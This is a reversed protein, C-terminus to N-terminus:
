ASCDVEQRPKAFLLILTVCVVLLGPITFDFQLGDHWFAISVQTALVPLLAMRYRSRTQVASQVAIVALILMVVDGRLAPIQILFAGFLLPFGFVMILRGIKRKFIQAQPLYAAKNQDILVQSVFTDRGLLTIIRRAFQYLFLLPKDTYGQILDRTASDYSNGSDKVKQSTMRMLQNTTSSPNEAEIVSVSLNFFVTTDPWWIGHKRGNRVALLAAALLTPAITLTLPLLPAENQFAAFAGGFIALITFDVRTLFGLAALIGLCSWGFPGEIQTMVISFLLLWLGLLADPWLHLVLVAREFCFILLLGTTFGAYIGAQQHTYFGAIGITAASILSMLVRANRVQQKKGILRALWPVIIFLPVRLWLHNKPTNNALAIYGGEDGIVKQPSLM